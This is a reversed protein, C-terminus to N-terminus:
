KNIKPLSLLLSPSLTLSVDIHSVDMLQRRCVGPVSGVVWSAFRHGKPKRSSARVLQAMVALTSSLEKIMYPINKIMYFGVPLMLPACPPTQMGHM